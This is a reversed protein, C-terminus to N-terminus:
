DDTKAAKFAANVLREPSLPFGEAWRQVKLIAMQRMIERTLPDHRMAVEALDLLANRVPILNSLITLDKLLVEELGNIPTLVEELWKEDSEPPPKEAQMEVEVKM